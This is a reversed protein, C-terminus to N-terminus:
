VLTLLAHSSMPYHLPTRIMALLLLNSQYRSFGQRAANASSVHRWIPVCVSLFLGEEAPNRIVAAMSCLLLPAVVLMADRVYQVTAALLTILRGTLKLWSCVLSFAVYGQMDLTGDRDFFSSVM